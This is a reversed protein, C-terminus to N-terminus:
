KVAHAICEALWLDYLWMNQGTSHREVRIGDRSGSVQVGRWRKAKPLDLAARLAAPLTDLGNFRGDQNEIAFEPVAAALHTISRRGQKKIRVGLGRRSGQMHALQASPKSKITLGLGALMDAEYDGRNGLILYTRLLMLLATAVVVHPVYQMFLEQSVRGFLFLWVNAVPFLALLNAWTYWEVVKRNNRALDKEITELDGGYVAMQQYLSNWSSLASLPPPKDSVSGRLKRLEIRNGSLIQVWGLVLLIILFFTAAGGGVFIPLRSQYAGIRDTYLAAGVSLIVVTALGGIIFLRYGDVNWRKKIKAM